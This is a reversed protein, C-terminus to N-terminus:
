QEVNLQNLTFISRVTLRVFLNLVEEAVLEDQHEVILDPEVRRLESLLCDRSLTPNFPDLDIGLDSLGVWVLYCLCM